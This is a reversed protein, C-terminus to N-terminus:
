ITWSCATITGKAIWWCQGDAFELFLMYRDVEIVVCDVSIAPDDALPPIAFHFRLHKREDKMKELWRDFKTQGPQLQLSKGKNKTSRRPAPRRVEM